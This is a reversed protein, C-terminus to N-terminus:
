EPGLPPDRDPRVADHADGFRVDSPRGVETGGYNPWADDPDRPTAIDGTHHFGVPPQASIGPGDNEKKIKETALRLEENIQEVLEVEPAGLLSMDGQHKGQAECATRSGHEPCTNPYDVHYSKMSLWPFVTRGTSKGNEDVRHVYLGGARLSIHEGHQLQVETWEGNNHYITYTPTDVAAIM